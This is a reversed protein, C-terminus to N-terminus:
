NPQAGQPTLLQEIRSIILRWNRAGDLDGRQLLADARMAAFVPADLQHQRICQHACAWLEWEPLIRREHLKKNDPM